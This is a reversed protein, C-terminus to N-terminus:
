SVTKSITRVWIVLFSLELDTTETLNMTSVQFGVICQIIPPGITGKSVPQVYVGVEDAM